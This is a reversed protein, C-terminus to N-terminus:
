IRTVEIKEADARRLAIVSSQTMYATPDGFVARFLPEVTEGPYFGLDTLRAKLADNANMALVRCKEGPSLKSLKATPSM